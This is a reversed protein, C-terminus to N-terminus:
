GLFGCVKNVVFAAVYALALTYVFLFTAWKISNTERRVVAITALCQPAFVYWALLALGTGLPWTTKLSEQLTRTGEGEDDANEIAFVTGLAGVMVERAAFGPVLGTAIRWDFGLPAILPEIAHGMQGAFSYHIAPRDAGEPAAPFTSLVWLGISIALIMKGARRLFAQTRQWLYIRLHLPSPLKYTPLEMLSLSPTASLITKKSIWAVMMASAIGSMFLGTMVLGQMNVMGGLVTTDPIFAGILLVYVPIRASCTMLPAILITLLRDRPERITRAAMVGPIACAFSSLLPVFSRGQLGVGAMLRDLLFAARMMYGSSELLYIFFFLIVIQPLFVLVSGVGAIIGDRILSALFTEGFMAGAWEGMAAISDEIWGMPAEALSFVSQFITFLIAALFVPGMVRHLLVRDLRHTWIHETGVGHVCAAVIRDIEQFRKSVDATTPTSKTPTSIKNASTLKATEKELLAILGSAGHRDLAVTSAVPVGLEKALTNLDIRMGRKEALDMMNIAVVIPRQLARIEMVLSLTRELNTADAVAVILDPHREGQIGAGTIVRVSIEEDVSQPELSYTGPLDIVEILRGSSTRMYGSKREVTVGPFNAVKQRAGTLANFLSSKGANPAGALAVCIAETSMIVKGKGDFRM